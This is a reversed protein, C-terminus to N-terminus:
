KQGRVRAKIEEWTLVNNPDADLEAIRRDLEQKQQETLDPVENDAAVTDWIDQVLQIREEVPLKAIEALMASVNM